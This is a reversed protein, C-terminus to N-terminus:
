PRVMSAQFNALRGNTDAPSLLTVLVTVRRVGTIPANLEITWNRQFTLMGSVTAPIGATWVSSATGGPTTSITWYGTAGTSSTGAIVESALGDAASIQVQDNYAFVEGNSFTAPSANSTLSGGATTMAPDVNPIRNLDELKESALMAAVQMYRSQNTSVSMSGMYGAVALMGFSLIFIAGLVEILTFGRQTRIRPRLRLAEM